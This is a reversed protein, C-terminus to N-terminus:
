LQFVGLVNSVQEQACLAGSCTASQDGLLVIADCM